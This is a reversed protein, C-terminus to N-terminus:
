MSLQNCLQYMNVEQGHTPLGVPLKVHLHCFSVIKKKTTPRGFELNTKLKTQFVDEFAIDTFFVCIFSQNKSLHKTFM